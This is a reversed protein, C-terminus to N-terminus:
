EGAAHYFQCPLLVNSVHFCSILEGQGGILGGKLEVWSIEDLYDEIVDDPREDAM